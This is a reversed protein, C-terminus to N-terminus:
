QARMVLLPADSHRMVKETVSGLVWRKIGTRGHTCMVFLSEPEGRALAIIEDAASGELFLPSVKDFGKGKLEQVKAAIYSRTEDKLQAALNEYDPKYDDQAEYYATYASLPPSYVHTLIVPLDLRKALEIATPVITEALESTDLLVVINKLKVERNANVGEAARVLLLSNATARLVKEAVSGLMWRGLGSRGHTAMAILTGKDRGAKEIIVEEARGKEVSAAVTTGPFTRGIRDLYAASGRAEGEIVRDLYHTREGAMQIALAGIDIVRFLEVPVKLTAAFFRAYPLVQEAVTSGDVPILIRTYM